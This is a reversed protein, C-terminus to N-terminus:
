TQYQRHPWMCRLRTCLRLKALSWTAAMERRLIYWALAFSEIPDIGVRVTQDAPLLGRAAGLSQNRFVRDLAWLKIGQRSLQYILLATRREPFAPHLVELQRPEVSFDSILNVRNTLLLHWFEVGCQNPTSQCGGRNSTSRM